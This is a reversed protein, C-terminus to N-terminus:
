WGWVDFSKGLINKLHEVPTNSNQWDGVHYTNEYILKTGKVDLSSYSNTGPSAMVSNQNTSPGYITHGIEHLITHKMGDEFQTELMTNIYIDAGKTVEDTGASPVFCGGWNSHGGPMTSPVIYIVGAGPEYNESNAETKIDYSSTGIIKEVKEKGPTIINKIYNIQQSSFKGKGDPGGPYGGDISDDLNEKIIIFGQDFGPYDFPGIYGDHGAVEDMFDRFENPNSAFEKYPVAAIKLNDYNASPIQITRVWGEQNGPTGHAARVIIEELGGPNQITFDFGGSSNTSNFGEEDSKNTEILNHDPDFVMLMGRVGNDTENSILTGKLYIEEWPSVIISKTVLESEKGDSNKVQGYLNITINNNGSNTYTREINIPTASYIEENVEQSNSADAQKVEEYFSYAQDFRDLSEANREQEIFYPDELGFDQESVASGVEKEKLNGRQERLIGRLTGTKEQKGSKNVQKGRSGTVAGALGRAYEDYTREEPLAVYNEGFSSSKLTNASSGGSGEIKLHYNVIDGGTGNLSINVKLPSEGSSPSASLSAVPTNDPTFPSCRNQLLGNFLLLGSLGLATGFKKAKKATGKVKSVLNKVM